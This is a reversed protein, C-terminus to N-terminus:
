LIVGLVNLTDNIGSSTTCPDVDINQNASASCGNTDTYTYTIAQNGVGSISPDFAGASVGIGSYTGGAPSGGTLTVASSNACLTDYPSVFNVTQAISVPVAVRTSACADNQVHWNYYYYYYDSGASSGTINLM